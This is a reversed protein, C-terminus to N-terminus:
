TAFNFWSVMDVEAEGGQNECTERLKEILLDAWGQLLAEQGRLAKESFGQGLLRRQRMHAEPSTSIISSSDDTTPGYHSPDKPLTYLKGGSVGGSGSVGSESVISHRHLGHIDRWAASSIFSLANPAFRVVPGYLAHLAAM